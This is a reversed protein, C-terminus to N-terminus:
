EMVEIDSVEVVLLPKLTKGDELLEIEGKVRINKDYLSDMYMYFDRGKLDANQKVNMTLTEGNDEIGWLDGRVWSFSARDTFTGEVTVNKGDFKEPNKLIDGVKTITERGLIRDIWQRVSDQPGGAQQAEALPALLFLIALCMASRQM